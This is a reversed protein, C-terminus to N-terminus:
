EDFVTLLYIILRGSCYFGVSDLISEAYSYLISKSDAYSDLM